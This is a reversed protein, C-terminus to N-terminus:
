RTVIVYSLALDKRVRTENMAHRFGLPQRGEAMSTTVTALQVVPPQDGPHANIMHSFTKCSWSM